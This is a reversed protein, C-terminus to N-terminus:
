KNIGPVIDSKNIDPGLKDALLKDLVTYVLVWASFILIIGILIPTIMRKADAILNADGHATMYKFGTFVIMGIVIPTLAFLVFQIVRRAMIVLQTLDCEKEVVDPTRPDDVGSCTVIQFKDNTPDGSGIGGDQDVAQGAPTGGPFQNNGPLGQAFVAEAVAFTALVSLTLGVSFLALKNMIPNM